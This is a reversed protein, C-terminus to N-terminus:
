CLFVYDYLKRLGNKMLHLEIKEQEQRMSVAILFQYDYMKSVRNEPYLEKDYIKVGWKKPNNCVWIFNVDAGILEKAVKKGKRGAGWLVLNKKPNFNLKLFYQIKLAFFDNDLYHPDNRSARSSHDRWYHLVEKVSVVKLGSQYFRFCLDYDEPYTNSTFAGSLVLDEYHVMWCPSPVVCEKYIDQFNEGTQTLRNLWNQYRLYGDGIPYDAFYKVLGIAINGKGTKVLLDKLRYLKHSSMRDDADMRTIYQGNCKILALRLAPIIGKQQNNLVKIRPDQNAYHNLIQFSHDTSFDNIALLEWDTGEQKLISDLCEELFPAANFVPM